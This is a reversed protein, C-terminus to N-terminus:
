HALVADMDQRRVALVASDIDPAIGFPSGDAGSVAYVVGFEARVPRIYAVQNLGLAAFDVPSMAPVRQVSSKM